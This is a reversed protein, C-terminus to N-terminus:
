PSCKEKLESRYHDWHKAICYRGQMRPHMISMSCGDDFYGNEKTKEVKDEELFEKYRGGSWSHSRNCLCHVLEHTVLEWREEYSSSKWIKPNVSIERVNRGIYYCVGAVSGKFNYFGMTIKYKRLRKAQEPNSAMFDDIYEKFSPDVGKHAPFPRFLDESITTCSVTMVTMIFILIKLYKFM